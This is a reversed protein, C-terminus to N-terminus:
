IDVTSKSKPIRYSEKITKKLDSMNVHPNSIINYGLKNIIYMMNDYALYEVLNFCDEVEAPIAVAYSPRKNDEVLFM